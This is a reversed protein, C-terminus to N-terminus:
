EEQETFSDKITQRLAKISVAGACRALEVGDSLFLFTPASQILRTECFLDFDNANLQIFLIKSFENELKELISSVSECNACAPITIEVVASNDRLLKDLERQNKPFIM